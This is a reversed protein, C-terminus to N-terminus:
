QTYQTSNDLSPNFSAKGYMCFVNCSACGSVSKKESFFLNIDVMEDMWRRWPPPFTTFWGTARVNSGDRRMCRCQCQDNENGGDLPFFINLFYRINGAEVRGGAHQYFHCLDRSLMEARVTCHLLGCLARSSFNGGAAAANCGSAFMWGRWISGMCEEEIFSHGCFPPWTCLM